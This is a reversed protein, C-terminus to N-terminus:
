QGSKAPSSDTAAPSSTAPKAGDGASGALFSQMANSVALVDVAEMGLMDTYPIGSVSAAMQMTYKLNKGAEAPIDAMDALTPARLVLEKIERGGATAEQATVNIMSRIPNQLKITTTKNKV